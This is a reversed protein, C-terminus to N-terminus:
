KKEENESRGRKDNFWYGTNLEKTRKLIRNKSKQERAVELYHKMWPKMDKEKM